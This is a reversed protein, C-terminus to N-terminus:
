MGKDNKPTHGFYNKYARSFAAQSQYGSQEIIDLMQLEGKQLAIRAQELRVQNYYENLGIGYFAKFGYALKKRSIILEKALSDLTPKISSIEILEKVSRIKELDSDSLNIRESPIHDMQFIYSLTLCLLEMFKGQLFNYRLEKLVTNRSDLIDNCVYKLNNKLPYFQWCPENADISFTQQLDPNTNNLIKSYCQHFDTLKVGIVLYRYDVNAKFKKIQKHEQPYVALALRVGAQNIEGKQPFQQTHGGEIAFYFLVLNKLIVKDNTPEKFCGDLLWAYGFDEPLKVAESILENENYQSTGYLELVVDNMTEPSFTDTIDFVYNWEGKPIKPSSETLINFAM